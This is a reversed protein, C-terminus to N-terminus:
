LSLIHRLRMADESNGSRVLYFDVGAAEAARRDNESDGIFLVEKPNVKTNKLILLLQDPAPKNRWVMDRGCIYNFFNDISLKYLIRNITISHNSSAIALGYGKANMDKIISLYEPFPYYSQTKECQLEYLKFINDFESKFDLTTSVSDCIISLHQTLDITIGMEKIKSCVAQYMKEWPIELHLLTGDM